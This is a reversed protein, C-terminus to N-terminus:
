FFCLIVLYLSVYERHDLACARSMKQAERFDAESLTTKARRRPRAASQEPQILYVLFSPPQLGHCLIDGRKASGVIRCFQLSKLSPFGEHKGESEGSPSLLSSHSRKVINGWILKAM